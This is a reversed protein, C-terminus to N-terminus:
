VTSFGGLLEKSYLSPPTVSDRRVDFDEQWIACSQSAATSAKISDCSTSVIQFGKSRCREWCRCRLLLPPLRGLSDDLRDKVKRTYFAQYLPTPPTFPDHLPNRHLSHLLAAPLSTNQAATTALVRYYHNRVSTTRSSM